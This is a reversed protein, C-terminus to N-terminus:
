GELFSSGQKTKSYRRVPPPVALPAATEHFINVEVTKTIGSGSGRKSNFSQLEVEEKSESQWGSSTGERGAASDAKTRNTASSMTVNFSSTSDNDDLDSFRTSLVRSPRKKDAGGELIATPSSSVGAITPYSEPFVLARWSSLSSENAGYIIADVLGQVVICAKDVTQLAFPAPRGTAAQYIRISTPLAWILMYAIPYMLMLRALKKLKRTTRPQRGAYSGQLNGTPPRDVARSRSGSTPYGSSEEDQSSIFRHARFLVFYLRAYLALMSLIIVWRPIFNVLLRVEDSTFWCGTCPATLPPVSSVPPRLPPLLTRVLV